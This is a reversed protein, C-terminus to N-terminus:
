PTSVENPKYTNVKIKDAYLQIEYDCNIHEILFTNLMDLNRSFPIESNKLQSILIDEQFKERDIEFGKPMNVDGYYLGQESLIIKDM